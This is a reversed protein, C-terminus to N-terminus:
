VNSDGANKETIGKLISGQRSLTQGGSTLLYLPVYFSVDILESTTKM